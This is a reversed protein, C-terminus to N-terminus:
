RRHALDRKLVDLTVFNGKAFNREAREFARKQAQTIPVEKFVRPPEARKLEEYEEKPILVLDKHRLNKPITITTM